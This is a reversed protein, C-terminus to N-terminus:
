ACEKSSRVESGEKVNKKKNASGVKNIRWEVYRVPMRRDFVIFSGNEFKTGEVAPRLLEGGGCISFSTEVPEELGDRRLM